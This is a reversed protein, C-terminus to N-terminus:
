PILPTYFLGGKSWLNNNGRKILVGGMRGLNREFLEGYNGVKTVVKLGWDAPLGLREGLRAELVLLRVRATPRDLERIYPGEQSLGVEEAAVLGNLVLQTVDFWPEDDQRVMPGLPVNSLMQPLVVHQEPLRLRQQLAGMQSLSEALADCKRGEYAAMAAAADGFLVPTIRMDRAGFYDEISQKLHLDDRLCIRTNSLQLVSRAGLEDPVLIVQGDFFSPGVFRAKTMPDLSLTWDTARTLVDIDGNRLAELGEVAGFPLFKTLKDNGFLAAAMARCVDVDLGFWSGRKDVTSFGPVANSVGCIVFGRDRVSALTGKAVAPVDGVFIAVAVILLVLRAASM